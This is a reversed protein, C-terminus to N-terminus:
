SNWSNDVGLRMRGEDERKEPDRDTETEDEFRHVTRNSRSKWSRGLLPGTGHSEIVEVVARDAMKRM